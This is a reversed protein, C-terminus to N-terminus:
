FLRQRLEQLRAAEAQLHQPLHEANFLAPQLFIEAPQDLQFTTALQQLLNQSVRNLKHARCLERFLKQPDNCPKSFDNRKKIAIVIAVAIGIVAAAIGFPLLDALQTQGRSRHLGDGLREWRSVQALISWSLVSSNM